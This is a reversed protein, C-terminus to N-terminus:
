LLDDPDPGPLADPLAGHVIIVIKGHRDIEVRGVPLGAAVVGKTARTVDAQKFAARPHAM